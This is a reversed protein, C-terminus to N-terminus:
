AENSRPVAVRLNSSVQHDRDVRYFHMEFTDVALEVHGAAELRGAGGAVQVQARM